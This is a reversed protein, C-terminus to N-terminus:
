HIYQITLTKCQMSTVQSFADDDLIFMM